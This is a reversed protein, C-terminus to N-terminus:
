LVQAIKQVLSQQTEDSTITAQDQIGGTDEEIDGGKVDDGWQFQDDGCATYVFRQLM